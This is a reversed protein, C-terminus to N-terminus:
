AAPSVTLCATNRPCAKATSPKASTTSLKPGPNSPVSEGPPLLNRLGGGGSANPVPPAPNPNGDATRPINPSKPNIWQAALPLALLLCLYRM